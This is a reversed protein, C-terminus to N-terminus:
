QKLIATINKLKEELEKIKLEQQHSLSELDDYKAQLADDKKIKKSYKNELFSNDNDREYWKKGNYTINTIKELFNEDQKEYIAIFRDILKVDDWYFLITKGVFDLEFPNYRNPNKELYDLIASTIEYNLHVLQECDITYNQSLLCQVGKPTLDHCVTIDIDDIYIVDECLTKVVDFHEKKLLCNIINNLSM